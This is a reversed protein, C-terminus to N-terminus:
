VSHSLITPVAIPIDHFSQCLHTEAHPNVRILLQVSPRASASALRRAAHHPAVISTWAERHLRSTIVVVSGPDPVTDRLARAILRDVKRLGNSLDYRRSRDPRVQGASGGCGDGM